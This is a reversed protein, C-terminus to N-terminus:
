RDSLLYNGYKIYKIYAAMNKKTINHAMSCNSESLGCLYVRMNGSIRISHFVYGIYHIGFIGFAKTFRHVGMGCTQVILHWGNTYYKCAGVTLLGPQQQESDRMAPPRGPIGEWCESDVAVTYCCCCCRGCQAGDGSRQTLMGNSRVIERSLQM